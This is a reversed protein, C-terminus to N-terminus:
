SSLSAVIKAIEAGMEIPTPDLVNPTPSYTENNKAKTTGLSIFRGSFGRGKFLATTQLKGILYGYFSDFAVSKAEYFCPAYLKGAIEKPFYAEDAGEPKEILLAAKVSPVFWPAESKGKRNEKSQMWQDTGGLALVEKLSYATRAKDKDRHEVKERYFVPGFGVVVVKSGAPIKVSQGLVFQGVPAIKKFEDGSTPQVLNLYPYRVRVSSTDPADEEAGTSFKSVFRPQEALANSSSTDDAEPPVVETNSVPASSGAGPVKAFSATAM